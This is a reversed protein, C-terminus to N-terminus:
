SESNRRRLITRPLGRSAVFHRFFCVVGVFSRVSLEILSARTRSKLNRLTIKGRRNFYERSYRGSLAFHTPIAGLLEIVHALHDTPVFCFCFLHCLDMLERAFRNATLLFLRPLIFFFVYLFYFFFVLFFVFCSSALASRWGSHLRRRFSAWVSLRRHGVWVGAFCWGYMVM